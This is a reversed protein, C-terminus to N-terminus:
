YYITQVAQNSFTALNVNVLLEHTILLRGLVPINIPEAARYLPGQLPIDSAYGVKVKDSIQIQAMAVVANPILADNLDQVSNRLSIGLWLNERLLLSANLDYNTPVNDDVIRLLMSPKFIAGNSLKFIMGGTLYYHRAYKQTVANKELDMALMKPVSIGAFYKETTYMAGAGFNPQSLSIDTDPFLEDNDVGTLKSYRLNFSNFSGMLGFSLKNVGINLKYSGMIQAEFNTNVGFEERIIAAGVGMKELPLPSHGSFATTVPAGEIGVWQFKQTAVLMTMEHHGAYAPNLVLPNLMYQSYLPEQAQAKQVGFFSLFVFSILALRNM